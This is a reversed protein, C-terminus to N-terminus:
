ETTTERDRAMELTRGTLGQDSKQTSMILGQRISMTLSISLNRKSRKRSQILLMREIMQTKQSMRNWNSHIKQFPIRQPGHIRRTQLPPTRFLNRLDLFTMWLIMQPFNRLPLNRTM